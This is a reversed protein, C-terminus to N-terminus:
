WILDYANVLAQCRHVSLVCMAASQLSLLRLADDPSM